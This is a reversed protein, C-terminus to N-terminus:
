GMTRWMTYCATLTSARVVAATGAKPASVTVTAADVGDASITERDVALCVPDHAQVTALLRRLIGEDDDLVVRDWGTSLPVDRFM